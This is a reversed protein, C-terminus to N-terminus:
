EHDIGEQTDRNFVIFEPAVENTLRVGNTSRYFLCGKLSMEGSNIKLVVPSGYRKGVAFATKESESLHVHHRDGKLLGTRLISDLNRTATGHYLLDPPQMPEYGLDVKVSHGQSARIRSEDSNFEFRKKDSNQVVTRLLERSIPRGSQACRGLLDNVSVWGAEDLVLGVTEPKHRLILSLFKSLGIMESNKV